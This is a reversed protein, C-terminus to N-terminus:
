LCTSCTYILLFIFKFNCFIWRTKKNLGSHVKMMGLVSTCISLMIWSSYANNNEGRTIKTGRCRNVTKSRTFYNGLVWNNKFLYSQRLNNCSVWATKFESVILSFPGFIFCPHIHCTICVAMYLIKFKDTFENKEEPSELMLFWIFCEICNISLSLWWLM